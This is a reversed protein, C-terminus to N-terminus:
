QKVRGFPFSLFKKIEYMKITKIPANESGNEKATINRLIVEINDSSCMVAEMSNNKKKINYRIGDTTVIKAMILFHLLYRSKNKLWSKNGVMNKKNVRSVLNPKLM